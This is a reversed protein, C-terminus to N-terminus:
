WSFSASGSPRECWDPSRRLDMSVESGGSIPVVRPLVDGLGLHLDGGFREGCGGPKRAQILLDRM